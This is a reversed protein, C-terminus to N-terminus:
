ADALFENEDEVRYFVMTALAMGCAGILSGALVYVSLLVERTVMLNEGQALDVELWPSIGSTKDLLPSMRDILNYVEDPNMGKYELLIKNIEERQYELEESTGMGAYIQEVFVRAWAGALEEATDRDPHDAWLHWGGDAPHSLSLIENRLKSVTFGDVEDVLLQMTEDNWALEELKRTERGLFYFNQAPAFEWVSELNHDIVVVARARYDPPFVCYILTALLAGLIAGGFWLRWSQLVRVVTDHSDVYTLHNTIRKM